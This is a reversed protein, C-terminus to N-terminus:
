YTTKSINVMGRVKEAIDLMNNTIRIRSEIVGLTEYM